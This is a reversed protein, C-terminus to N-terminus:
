VEQELVMYEAFCKSDLLLTTYLSCRFMLPFISYTQALNELPISLVSISAVKGPIVM